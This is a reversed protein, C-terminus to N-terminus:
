TRANREDILKRVFALLEAKNMGYHWQLVAGEFAAFDFLSGM